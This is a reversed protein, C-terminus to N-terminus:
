DVRALTRAASATQTNGNGALRTLVPKGKGGSVLIVGGSAADELVTQQFSITKIHISTGPLTDGEKLELQTGDKEFVLQGEPFIYDVVKYGQLLGGAAHADSLACALFLACLLTIVRKSTPM